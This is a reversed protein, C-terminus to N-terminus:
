IYIYIHTHTHTHTHTNPSAAIDADDAETVAAPLWIVADGAVTSVPARCVINYKYLTPQRSRSSVGRVSPFAGTSFLTTNPIGFISELRCSHTM